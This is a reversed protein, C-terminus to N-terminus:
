SLISMLQEKTISASSMEEGSLIEGALDAKQEALKLIREEITDKVILRYVSVIKDQGIRHARDTAQNEVATNWWPDYHIVIDAATLNLGTGGAKTSICFIPVDDKQFQEVMQSRDRISTSGTLLHYRIGHEELRRILLDLMTTFQSFLLIKHGESAAREILDICLDEKASNGKYTDYVLAPSCCLQRLRTLEALVAIRNKRFEEDSQKGLMIKLRQVRADYLEKQEGELPAYSVEELKDPLDTLVDQKLRRLIFPGIMERLRNMTEEDQDRVIPLEYANRFHRYTFLFGPMLYDFISWLESLRNEIPTGTLAIRFAANIEKVSSAAQTAANKIYQAEDIVEIDFHHGDYLEVDRKISDYSTILIENATHAHILEERQAANGIIMVTELDPAFKTFENSWNYVLSAPCIILTHHKPLSRILAIVQVSKGLGMEDALLGAFGNHQLASLWRFGAKQYDRLVQDLEDPIPYDTLEISHIQSILNRFYEDRSILLSTDNEAAQDLVMARYKPISVKGKRIQANSLQLQENLKVMEAMEDEDINLFTGNKLRYYKKKPTYRSLIEALDELTRHDQSLDLQLLDHNVSIGVSIKPMTRVTIKKLSDTIFVEAKQRIQEIGKTLLDYLKDEDDALVLRHHEQDFGTFMASIMQDFQKETRIDRYERGKEYGELLNFKQDHYVAYVECTIFSDQPMDLYVQFEPKPPLYTEPDFGIAHIKEQESPAMTSQLFRRIDNEALFLKTKRSILNQLRISNRSHDTLPSRIIKKEEPAIFYFYRLGSFILSNKGSLTYGDKTKELSFGFEPNGDELTRITEQYRSGEPETVFLKMNWVSEMFADLQNKPILYGSEIDSTYGDWFYESRNSLYKQYLLNILPQSEPSFSEVSPFFDLEKGYRIETHNAIASALKGVEKLKYKRSGTRGIKMDLSVSNARRNGESLHVEIEVDGAQDTESASLANAIFDKLDQDTDMKQWDPLRVQGKELATLFMIVMATAHQCPHWFRSDPCDCSSDIIRNMAINYRLTTRFTQNTSFDKVDGTMEIVPLKDITYSLHRIGRYKLVMQAIEATSPNLSRLLDDLKAM